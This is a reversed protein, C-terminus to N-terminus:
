STPKSSAEEEMTVAVAANASLRVKQGEVEAVMGFDIYHYHGKHSGERTAAGRDCVGRVFGPEVGGVWAQSPGDPMARLTRRPTGGLRAPSADLRPGAEQMLVLDPDYTEILRVVDDTGAGSGHLLNWSQVRISTANRM